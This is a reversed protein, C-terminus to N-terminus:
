KKVRELVVIPLEFPRQIYDRGGVYVTAMAEDTDPYLPHARHIKAITMDPGGSKLRVVDGARLANRCDFCGHGPSCWRNECM